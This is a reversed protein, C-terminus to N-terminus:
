LESIFDVNTPNGSLAGHIALMTLRAAEKGSIPKNGVKPGRGNPDYIIIPNNLVYNYPTLSPFKDALPNVSLWRGVAADYFRAGFYHVNSQEDLTIDFVLPSLIISFQDLILGFLFAGCICM